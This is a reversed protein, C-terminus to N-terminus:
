GKVPRAPKATMKKHGLAREISREMFAAALRNVTADQALIHAMAEMVLATDPKEQELTYARSKLRSILDAPTM